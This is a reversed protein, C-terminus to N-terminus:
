LPDLILGQPVTGQNRLRYRRTGSKGNDGTVFVELTFDGPPIRLEPLRLTPSRYSAGSFLYCDPDGAVKIAVAFAEGADKAYIDLRDCLDVLYDDAPEIIQGNLGLHLRRPEERAGWKTTIKEIIMGNAGIVSIQSRCNTATNRQIFSRFFPQNVVKLHAIRAAQRYNEIAPVENYRGEYIEVHLWPQKVWEFIFITGLAIAFATLNVAPPSYLSDKLSLGLLIGIVLAGLMVLILDKAYSKLLDVLVM